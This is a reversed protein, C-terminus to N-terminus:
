QCCFDCRTWCAINTVLVFLNIYDNFIVCMLIPLLSRNTEVSVYVIFSFRERLSNHYWLTITTSVLTSHSSRSVVMATENGSGYTREYTKHSWLKVLAELFSVRTWPSRLNCLEAAGRAATETWSYICRLAM